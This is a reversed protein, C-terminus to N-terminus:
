KKRFLPSTVLNEILTVFRYDDKRADTVIPQLLDRDTFTMGRRLAYTALKETFAAAFKDLDEVLLRKLGAADSFSRGDPLRGSADIVPDDGTGARVTELTRWRGIADYHDFAMGLPDIRNHCATCSAEARHLELTERVTMKRKGATPTDLAPVNAPPPPPPRGLMSELVWVGRHVPRHRTGDSSLSLVSAQTLLGGRRAEPALSVRQLTDGKMAALGYHRALRENVLTWDSDLFERLGLNGHLVEGFFGLTEAVMSKELNEDYDPYLAADPAFMGVKRLQLWQRPFDTAFAAAKPDALMRRVEARLMRPDRLAGSAAAARLADDPLTSWLFYSLRAAFEWEDLETGAQKARGQVLYLFNKSTLVALLTTKIAAPFDDGATQARAFVRMMVEVEGDPVPRRWAREAFRRIIERAYAADLRAEAGAFFITKQAPTPWSALVPGEWEIFDLLLVPVIPRGEDDTLKMQWPVRSDLGTFANATFSSRSRRAEPNPGPVANVIRVDHTGAPLHVQFEHTVPRDEPTDIDREFLVRDLNGAYLRLRPARGGEPRLGSAQLRVRYIGPTEITLKLRDLQGNNPMVDMRVRHAMGRAEYEAQFKKWGLEGRLFFPDWRTTERRPEPGAPLAETLVTEAAALYKEVHAPALTLVGGIREFGHWDPDEPLGNPGTPDFTVGLLDRLTNAYEGRSLKHLAVREGDGAQRAAEAERLQAAIWESIRLVEAPEPRERDEPPMEGSGIRSMIEEWHAMAAPSRYDLALNDVRLDGKQKKEGHCDNCHRAFFPRVTQELGASATVPGTSLPVAASAWGAVFGLGLFRLRM